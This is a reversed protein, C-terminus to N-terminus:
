PRAALSPDGAGSGDASGAPPGGDGCTPPPYAMADERLADIARRETELAGGARPPASAVLMDLLFLPLLTLTFKKAPHPHARSPPPPPM